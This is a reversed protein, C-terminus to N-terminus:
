GAPDVRFLVQNYEVPQQNEVLIEAITGSCEAMVENFLKMAEIVCVVTDHAVKSGVRVFPPSDPNPSSYFTGVTASKIEILKKAPAAAPADPKANGSPPPAAGAAPFPAVQAPAASVM